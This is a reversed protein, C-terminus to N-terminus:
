GTTMSRVQEQGHRGLPVQRGYVRSLVHGHVVRAYGLDERELEGTM